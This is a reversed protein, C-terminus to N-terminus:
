GGQVGKEGRAAFSELCMRARKRAEGLEIDVDWLLGVIEEVDADSVALPAPPREFSPWQLVDAHVMRQEGLNDLIKRAHESDFQGLDSLLSGVVQYAEGIITELEDIRGAEASPPQQAQQLAAVIARIAARIVVFRHTGNIVSDAVRDMGGVNMVEPGILRLEAALLRRAEEEHSEM